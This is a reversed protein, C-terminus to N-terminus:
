VRLGDKRYHIRPVSESDRRSDVDSHTLPFKNTAIPELFAQAKKNLIPRVLRALNVLLDKAKQIDITDNKDFPEEWFEYLQDKLQQYNEIVGFTTSLDYMIAKEQDNSVNKDLWDYFDDIDDDIKQARLEMAVRYKDRFEGDDRLWKSITPFTPLKASACAKRASLGDSVLEIFLDKQEAMQAGSIPAPGRKKPM